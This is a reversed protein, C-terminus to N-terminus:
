LMMTRVFRCRRGERTRSAVGEVGKVEGKVAALLPAPCPNRGFIQRNAPLPRSAVVFLSRLFSTTTQKFWMDRSLCFGPPARPWCELRRRPLRLHPVTAPKPLASTSCLWCPPRFYPYRHNLVRRQRLSARNGDHDAGRAAKERFCLLM